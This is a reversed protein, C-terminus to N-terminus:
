LHLFGGTSLASKLTLNSLGFVDKCALFTAPSTQCELANFARGPLVAAPTALLIPVKQLQLEDRYSGPYVDPYVAM